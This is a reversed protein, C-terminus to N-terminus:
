PNLLTWSWDGTENCQYCEREHQRFEHEHWFEIRDPVVRFGTWYPPRPIETDAYQERLAALRAEFEDRSALPRSQRSACAGLQSERPRTAWYRDAEADEVDAVTGEIKVQHMLPQWFFLLAARPNERLAQGKRSERNSYFVFGREDVDKLLVTRASPRGGADATALTMATPERLDTGRAQELLNRFRAIAQGYLDGATAISADAM